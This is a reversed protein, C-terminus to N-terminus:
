KDPNQTSCWNDFIPFWADVIASYLSRADQRSGPMIYRSNKANFAEYVVAKIKDPLWRPDMVGDYRYTGDHGLGYGRQINEARELLEKRQDTFLRNTNYSPSEIDNIDIVKEAIGNVRENRDEHIADKIIQQLEEKSLEM